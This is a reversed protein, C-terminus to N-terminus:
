PEMTKPFKALLLLLADDGTPAGCVTGTQSETDFVLKMIAEQEAADKLLATLGITAEKGAWVTTLNQLSSAPTGSSSLQTRCSDFRRKAISRLKLIRAARESAPLKKFPALELIRASNDLMTQVDPSIAAQTSATTEREHTARELLRHAEEFDGSQYRLRGAAILATQNDPQQVLVREYDTLAGHPDDAQELLQALTLALAPDNPDNGGAVLLETRASSPDHHAILYRALELRVERRRVTGDGEWTGYIAARYYNITTQTDNKKAALRALSLNILGDGPQTEWL